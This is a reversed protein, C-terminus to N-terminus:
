RGCGDERALIVQEYAAVHAACIASWTFAQSRLLGAQSLEARRREDTLLGRLAGGLQAIETVVGDAGERLLYDAGPNPTAVVPTGAAMAELYPIGLGEYASPLCFVWAEAFRRRLEEDTPREVHEIWPVHPAEDSVMVLKADPIGPLVDREFADALERGRKRGRWTGVFLVTPHRTRQAPSGATDVGCGLSGATRYWRGDGPILGYTATALRAALLEFAFVLLQSARRRWSTATRLEQLASGYFTRVTPVRRRLYFWDDGHLHLVDLGSVDLRNLALPVLFMRPLKRHRWNSPELRRVQYTADAPAPSYTFMTVRHGAAVLQNALRDILVDVGGPKRDPEPLSTTFMGVHLSSV